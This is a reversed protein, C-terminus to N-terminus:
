DWAWVTDGITLSGMGAGEAIEWQMLLAVAPPVSEPAVEVGDRYVSPVLPAFWDPPTPLTRNM